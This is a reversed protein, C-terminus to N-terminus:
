PTNVRGLLLDDFILGDVGSVSKPVNESEAKIAQIDSFNAYYYM